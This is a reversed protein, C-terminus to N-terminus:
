HSMSLVKRGLLPVRATGEGFAEGECVNMVQKKVESPDRSLLVEATFCTKLM